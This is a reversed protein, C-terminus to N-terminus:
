PYAPRAVPARGQQNPGVGRPSRVGRCRRRWPQRADVLRRLAAQTLARQFVRAFPRGVRTIWNGACSRAEMVVTVEGTAKLRVEFSAVGREPHGELTVYCFGVSGGGRLGDDDRTPPHDWVEIVRVAAELAVPGVVVRQVITSCAAVRGAPYITAHVINPPFIDYTLLRERLSNYVTLPCEEPGITVQAEYADVTPNPPGSHSSTRAARSWRECLAMDLPHHTLTLNM